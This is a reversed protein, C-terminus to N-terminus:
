TRVVQAVHMDPKWVVKSNNLGEFPVFFHIFHQNQQFHKIHIGLFLSKCFPCCLCGHKNRTLKNTVTYWLRIQRVGIVHDKLLYFLIFPMLRSQRYHICCPYCSVLTASRTTKALMQQSSLNLSFSSNWCDAFCVIRKRNISAWAWNVYQLHEHITCKWTKSCSHFHYLALVNM